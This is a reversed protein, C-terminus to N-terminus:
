PETLADLQFFRIPAGLNEARKRAFELAGPSRDCAEIALPLGVKSAKQWLRIPLDGAGTALDLMRLPRGPNNQTLSLIPAWLIRASGSWRNIRELGRLAAEHQAQELDPQDMREPERRRERLNFISLASSLSPVFHGPSRRGRM